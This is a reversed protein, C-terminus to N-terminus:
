IYTSYSDESVGSSPMLDWWHHNHAVMHKSPSSSLVKLLATLARLWQAMEGARSVNEQDLQIDYFSCGQKDTHLLGAKQNLQICYGQRETWSEVIFVSLKQPAATEGDSLGAWRIGAEEVHAKTETKEENEWLGWYPIDKSQSLIWLWIKFIGLTVSLFYETFSKKITFGSVHAVWCSLSCTLTSSLKGSLQLCVCICACICWVCVCM